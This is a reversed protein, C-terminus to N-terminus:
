ASLSPRRRLGHWCAEPLAAVRALFYLTYLVLGMGLPPIRRTTTARYIVTALPVALVLAAALLLAAPTARWAVLVAGAAALAVLHLLTMALPRDLPIMRATGIMGLAHWYEKAFFARLSAPNGHHIVRLRRDQWLVAGRDLLRLCFKADEGTPLNPDFGGAAEFAARTVALNGANIMRVPGDAPPAHLADWAQELRTPNPPLLYYCGVAQAAHRELSERVARFYDSDVSCDADVFCLIEAGGAARVGENRLAGVSLGPRRLVGVRPWTAEVFEPSGDTSGNDVLILQIRGEDGASSTLSGICDTLFGKANRCPVIAAMTPDPRTDPM